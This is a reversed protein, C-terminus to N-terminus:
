GRVCDRGARKAELLAADARKIAGGITEGPAVEAVGASVTVREAPTRLGALVARVRECFARAGELPGPLVVLFEEGGWRVVTDTTRAHAVLAAAVAALVADGVDHGLADNVAKFEDVDLMAISLPTGSRRSRSLERALAADGGRRNALGTLPDTMAEDRDATIDHLVVLWGPGDYLVVPAVTRRMVRRRPRQVEFVGAEGELPTGAFAEEGVAFLELYARNAYVGRRQADFTAVGDEVHELIIRLQAERRREETVDRLALGLARQGEFDVPIARTQVLVEGFRLELPRAAREELAPERALEAAADGLTRALEENAYVLQGGVSVAFGFPLRDLVRRLTAEARRRKHVVEQTVACVVSIVLMGALIFGHEALGLSSLDPAFRLTVMTALVVALQARSGNLAVWFTPVLIFPALTLPPLGPGLRGRLWAIMLLYALPPALEFWRPLREWPALVVAACLAVVSGAAVVLLSEHAKSGTTFVITFGALTVLLFPAARRALGARRFPRPIDDDDRRSM